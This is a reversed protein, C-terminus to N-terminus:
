EKSNKLFLNEIKSKMTEPDQWHQRSSLAIAPWNKTGLAFPKYVHIEKVSISDFYLDDDTFIAAHYKDGGKITADVFPLSQDVKIDENSFKMRKIKNKLYWSQSFRKEENRKIKFEGNSVSVAYELYKKLLKPGDNKTEEVKLQQPLISSVIYIKERARTVAVNLRNEGGEVNLSGFNLNFKGSKDPAYLISFIIIDKEDGQINEINKVILSDPILFNEEVSFIDLQDMIFLQQKVNFTVIGIEKTPDSRLLDRVMRCIEYAENENINNEWVGDCKIYEIAPKNENVVNFDPLLSLRNNYFHENSFSILDLTKSRYHGNLSVQMLYQSSLNLLSDFDLDPIDEENEDEWRVKYLDNPKLQKDDGAVVVQKGRYIAPLGNEAFCQSAEDFIVLDFIKEMPFIASASEPSALWCPILDFVERPYNAILKRVPWIRRKKTVQHYVDRYTVRNNLRNYEVNKYVRERAKLLLIENSLEQKKKVAQQLEAQTNELKNSSVARLIPYKQEIHDIWALKLSNMFLATWEEPSPNPIEELLKDLIAKQSSNFNEFLSDFECLSDFDRTLANGLISVDINGAFIERLKQVTFYKSWTTMKEPLFEFVKLLSSLKEKFNEYEGPKPSLYESLHRVKIYLAKASVAQKQYFFWNQINIKKIVKPFAILGIHNKLETFNHELNLRNDIMQVLIEFGEKNSKLKNAVLIRTIYIKDKSFITWHLWGILGKRADISRELAEQFRGLEEPKLTLEPGVGKYCQLLTREFASLWTSDTKDKKDNLLSVFSEYVQPEKILTFLKNINDKNNEIHIADEIDVLKNVTELSKEKLEVQYEPIEKLINQIEKQDAAGLGAFSQRKRWAYNEILFIGAYQAYAKLQNIFGDVNKFTIDRYEQNLPVTPEHPSSTLYLEKISLGCESDHFLAEKFEELEESLQDIRRSTQLYSRELQISDLSNNRSIYSDLQDVQGAIQEYIPKRDNKFDHLLGIFDDLQKEKLRNFVVDLAARKQSVLLVNKGLAIYDSILNCILQSKGTGPPGQVVVSNGKKIAKIANEQYADMKFPTFTQDERVKKLFRYYNSDGNKEEDLNREEFFSDMNKLRPDDLMTLYDPVLYSGAQPFIGLVAQPYLKLQGDKEGEELQSRKLNDFSKLEDIFNDQNFNIELNFEKLLEYLETRFGKSERDFDDFVRELLEDSAKQENFFAYALLFSKNLTINVDKRIKLFWLKGDSELTVPFFMLPCRALTRDSFKGKVFPWGVYLDRAGREEFVLQDIRNLKRLRTSLRNSDQDRSNQVDCLEIKSKRCILESVIEFSPKNLAFNFDHIDIFQDSLLRTLLISRSNGSLNTLRRLYSKLIEQM